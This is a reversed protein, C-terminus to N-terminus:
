AELLRESFKRMVSGFSQRMLAAADCSCCQRNTTFTTDKREKWYLLIVTFEFQRQRSDNQLLAFRAYKVCVGGGVGVKGVGKEGVM